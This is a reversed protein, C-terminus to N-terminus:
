WSIQAVVPNHDSLGEADVVRLSACTAGGHVVVHDIMDRAGEVAAAGPRPRTAISGVPAATASWAPGLGLTVEDLTANFDGVIVGPGAVQSALTELQAVRKDGFTVHTNVIALPEGRTTPATTILYGKGGDSDFAAHAGRALRPGIIVLYERTDNLRTRTPRRFRPIRPYVVAHVLSEDFLEYLAALQDGSVEQLCVVDAGLRRVFDTVAVSRLVEDPYAGIAPESWNEAHIRHLVNWTAITLM